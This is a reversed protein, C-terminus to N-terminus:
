TLTPSAQPGRQKLREAVTQLLQDSLNNDTVARSM